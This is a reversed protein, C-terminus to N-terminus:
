PAPVADPPQTAALEAASGRGQVLVQPAVHISGERVAHQAKGTYKQKREGQQQRHRAKGCLHLQQVDAVVRGALQVLVEVGAEGLGPQRFGAVHHRHPLRVAARALLRPGDDIAQLRVHHRQCQGRVDVGDRFLRLYDVECGAWALPPQDATDLVTVHVGQAALHGALHQGLFGAGGTVLIRM